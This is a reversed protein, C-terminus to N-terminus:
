AAHDSSHPRSSAAMPRWRHHIHDCSEPHTLTPTATTTRRKHQKTSIDPWVFVAPWVCVCECVALDSPWKRSDISARWQWRSRIEKNNDEAVLLAVTGGYTVGFSRGFVIAAACVRRGSGPIPRRRRSVASHILRLVLVSLLLAPSLLLCQGVSKGVRASSEGAARKM